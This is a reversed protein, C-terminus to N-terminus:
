FLQYRRVGLVMNISCGDHALGLPCLLPHLLHFAWGMHFEPELQLFVAFPICRCDETRARVHERGEGGSSQRDAAWGLLSERSRIELPTQGTPPVQPVLPSDPQPM